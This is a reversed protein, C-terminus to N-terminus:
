FRKVRSKIMEFLGAIDASINFKLILWGFILIFSLSRIAVNLMINGTDPLMYVLLLVLFGILIAKGNEITFPQLKFIKWIM